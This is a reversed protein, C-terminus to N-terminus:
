NKSKKYKKPINKYNNLLIKKKKELDKLNELGIAHLDSPRLNLGKMRSITQISGRKPVGNDRITILRESIKKTDRPM